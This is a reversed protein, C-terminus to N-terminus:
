FSTFMKDAFAIRYQDFSSKTSTLEGKISNCEQDVFKILDIAELLRDHLEEWDQSDIDSALSEFTHKSKKPQSNNLSPSAKRKSNVDQQDPHSQKNNKIKCTNCKKARGFVAETCGDACCTKQTGYMSGLSNSHGPKNLLPYSFSCAPNNEGSVTRPEVILANDHGDPHDDM